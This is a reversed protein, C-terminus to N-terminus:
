TRHVHNQQLSRQSPLQCGKHGQQGFSRRRLCQHSRDSAGSKPVVKISQAQTFTINLTYTANKKAFNNYAVFNLMVSPSSHVAGIYLLLPNSSFLVRYFIPQAFEKLSFYVASVGDDSVSVSTFIKSSNYVNYVRKLPDDSLLLTTIISHVAPGVTQEGYISFSSVESLEHCYIAKVSTFGLHRLEFRKLSEYEKGSSGDGVYGVIISDVTLIKPILIYADKFFCIEPEVFDHNFLPRFMQSVQVFYPSNSNSNDASEQTTFDFHFMAIVKPNSYYCAKALRVPNRGPVMNASSVCPVQNTGLGLVPDVVLQYRGVRDYLFEKMSVSVTRNFALAFLWQKSCDFIYGDSKGIQGLSVFIKENINYALLHSLKSIKDFAAVFVCFCKLSHDKAIIVKANPIPFSAEEKCERIFNRGIYDAREICSMFGVKRNHEEFILGTKMFFIEDADSIVKSDSRSFVVLHAKNNILSINQYQTQLGLTVNNGLIASTYIPAYDFTNKQVTLTGTITELVPDPLYYNNPLPTLVIAKSTVSSFTANLKAADSFTTSSIVNTKYSADRVESMPDSFFMIGEYTLSRKPVRYGIFIINKDLCTFYFPSSDEHITNLDNSESPLSYAQECEVITVRFYAFDSIKNNDKKAKWSSLTDLFLIKGNSYHKINLTYAEHGLKSVRVEFGLPRIFVPMDNPILGSDSFEQVKIHNGQHIVLLEHTERFNENLDNSAMIAFHFFFKDSLKMDLLKVPQNFGQIAKFDVKWDLASIKFDISAKSLFVGSVTSTLNNWFVALLNQSYCEIDFLYKPPQTLGVPLLQQIKISTKTPDANENIFVVLNNPQQYTASELINVTFVWNMIMITDKCGSTIKTRKGVQFQGPSSLTSKALNYVITFKTEAVLVKVLQLTTKNAQSDVKSSLIFLVQKEDGAFIRYTFGNQLQMNLVVDSFSSVPIKMDQPYRVSYKRLQYTL